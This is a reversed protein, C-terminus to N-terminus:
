KKKQSEIIADIDRGMSRFASKMAKHEAIFNSNIQNSNEVAEYIGGTFINSIFKITKYVVMAAGFTIAAYIGWLGVTMVIAGFFGAIGSWAFHEPLVIIASVLTTFNAVLMVSGVFAFIGLIVAFIKAYGDVKSKAFLKSM